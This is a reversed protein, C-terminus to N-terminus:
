LGLREVVLGVLYVVSQFLIAVAPDVTVFDCFSVVTAVAFIFFETVHSCSVSAVCHASFQIVLNPVLSHAHTM